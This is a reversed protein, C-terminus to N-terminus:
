YKEFCLRQDVINDIKIRNFYINKRLYSDQSLKMEGVKWFVQLQKLLFLVLQILKCLIIYVKVLNFIFRVLCLIQLLNFYVLILRLYKLKDSNKEYFIKIFIYKERLLQMFM